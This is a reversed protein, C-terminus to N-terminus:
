IGSRTHCNEVANDQLENKGDLQNEDLSPISLLDLIRSDDVLLDEVLVVGLEYPWTKVRNNAIDACLTRRFLSLIFLGKDFQSRRRRDDLLLEHNCGIRVDLLLVRDM